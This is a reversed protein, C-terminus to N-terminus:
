PRYGLRLTVFTDAEWSGRRLRTRSTPRLARPSHDGRHSDTRTISLVGTWWPANERRPAPTDPHAEPQRTSSPSQEDKLPRSLGRVRHGRGTRARLPLGALAWDRLPTPRRECGRSCQVQRLRRPRGLLAHRAKALVRALCSAIARHTQVEHQTASTSRRRRAWLRALEGEKVPFSSSHVPALGFRSVAGPSIADSSSDRHRFRSSTTASSPRQEFPNRRPDEPMTEISSVEPRALRERKVPLAPFAIEASSSGVTARAHHALQHPSPPTLPSGSSFLNEFDRGSTPSLVEQLSRSRIASAHPAVHFAGHVPRLPALEPLRYGSSTAPVRLRRTFPM